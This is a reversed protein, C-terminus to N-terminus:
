VTVDCVACVLCLHGGTWWIGSFSFGRMFVKQTRWQCKTVKRTETPLEKGSELFNFCIYFRLCEHKVANTAFFNAFLISKKDVVTSRSVKHWDLGHDNSRTWVYSLDKTTEDQFVVYLNEITAGHM